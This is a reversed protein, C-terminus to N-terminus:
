NRHRWNGRMGGRSATHRVIEAANEKEGEEEEDEDGKGEGGRRTAVVVMAIVCVRGGKIDTVGVGTEAEVRGEM